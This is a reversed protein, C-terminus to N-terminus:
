KAIIKAIFLFALYFKCFRWKQPIIKNTQKSFKKSNKQIKQVFKKFV